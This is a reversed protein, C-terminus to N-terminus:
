WVIIVIKLDDKGEGRWIRARTRCPPRVPDRRTPYPRNMSTSPPVESRRRERRWPSALTAQFQVRKQCPAAECNSFFWYPLSSCVIVEFIARQRIGRDSNRKRWTSTPRRITQLIKKKNFAKIKSKRVRTDFISLCRCISAHNPFSESQHNSSKTGFSFVFTKNRVFFSFYSIEEEGASQWKRETNKGYANFTSGVRDAFPTSILM